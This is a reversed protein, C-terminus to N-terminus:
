LSFNLSNSNSSAPRWSIVSVSWAAIDGAALTLPSYKACGCAAYKLTPRIPRSWSSDYAPRLPIVISSASRHSLGFRAYSGASSPTFHQDSTRKLRVVPRSFGAVVSWSNYHGGKPPSLGASAPRERFTTDAKLRVFAPPAPPLRTWCALWEDRRATQYGSGRHRAPWM